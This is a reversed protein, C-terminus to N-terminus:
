LKCRDLSRPDQAWPGHYIGGERAKQRWPRAKNLPIDWHPDAPDLGATVLGSSTQAQLSGDPGIITAGVDGDGKGPEALSIWLGYLEAHARALTVFFPNGSYSSVLVCDAGAAAYDAFVEPFQLEICLACGFTLGGASFLFPQSGPSYWGKIESNSCFRKDYRGALRGDPGFVYLSNHPLNPSTLRHAAGVVAWLSLRRAQAGIELLVKRLEEWPYGEWGSIESKAYGSAVGESFHVLQAGGAKAQRMAALIAKGNRGLDPGVPIAATALIM